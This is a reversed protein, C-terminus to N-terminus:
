FEIEVIIDKEADGGDDQLNEGVSYILKKERSYRMPEGDFDDAPIKDIYDPVLADLTRPLKGTRMKYCKLAILLRTGAVSVNEQCKVKTLGGFAPMLIRYLTIGGMNGSLLLAVKSDYEDASAKALRPSVEQTYEKLTKGTGDILLRFQAAFMRKTKNPKLTLCLLRGSFGFGTEMTGDAVSDVTGASVSYEMRLANALAGEDAMLGALTEIHGRLTEEDLTTDALMERLANLGLKKVAIGVLHHILVGRSREIMQGFEVIRLAEEFAEKERGDKSLHLGRVKSLTAIRRWPSLYPLQTYANMIQPIQIETCAMGKALFDFMEKNTSLLEEVFEADWEDGELMSDTKERDADSYSLANSALDFYTFANEEDPINLRALRLDADNPPPEDKGLYVLISCVAAITLLILVSVCIVITKKM